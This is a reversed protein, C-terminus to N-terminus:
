KHRRRRTRARRSERPSGVAFRKRLAKSSTSIFSLNGITMAARDNAAAPDSPAQPESLLPPPAVHPLPMSSWPSVHSVISGVPVVQAEAVVPALGMPVGVHLMVVHWISVLVQVVAAAPVPPVVLVPEPPLGAEPPVVVVM